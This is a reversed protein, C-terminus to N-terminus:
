AAGTMMVLLPQQKSPDSYMAFLKDGAPRLDYHSSSTATILQKLKKGMDARGPLADLVQRARATQADSWSEVQPDTANELWRYPDTVTVGQVVDNVPQRRTPPATRDAAFAATAAVISLLIIRLKM